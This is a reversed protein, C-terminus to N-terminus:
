AATPLLTGLQTHHIPRIHGAQAGAHSGRGNGSVRAMAQQQQQQQQQFQQQQVQQQQQQQAASNASIVAQEMATMRENMRETVVVLAGAVEEVQM